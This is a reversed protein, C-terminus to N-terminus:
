NLFFACPARSTRAKDGFTQHYYCVPANATDAPQVANNQQSNPPPVNPRRVQQNITLFGQRNHIFPKAKVNPLVSKKPTTINLQKNIDM